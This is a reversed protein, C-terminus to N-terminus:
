FLRISASLGKRDQTLIPHLSVTSSRGPRAYIPQDSRTMADIGAGLGSTPIGFFLAFMPIAAEGKGGHERVFTRGALVGLGAGVAFGLIAGNVMSDPRRRRVATIDRDLFERQKSNVLIWLSSPSVQTITGLVEQGTGDTVRVVDGSKVLLRLEDFSAALEQAEGTTTLLALILAVAAVRSTPSQM